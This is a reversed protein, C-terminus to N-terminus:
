YYNTVWFLMSCWFWEDIFGIFTVNWSTYIVRSIWKWVTSYTPWMIVTPAADPWRDDKPRSILGSPMPNQCCTVWMPSSSLMPSPHRSMGWSLLDSKSTKASKRTQRVCRMWDLVWPSMRSAPCFRKLGADRRQAMPLELQQKWRKLLKLWLGQARPLKPRQLVLRQQLRQLQKPSQNRIKVLSISKWSQCWVMTLCRQMLHVMMMRLDQGIWLPNLKLSTILCHIM